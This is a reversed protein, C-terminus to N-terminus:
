VPDTLTQPQAKTPEDQDSAPAPSNGSELEKIKSQIAESISDAFREAEHVNRLFLVVESDDGDESCRVFIGSHDVSPNKGQETAISASRVQPGTIYIQM